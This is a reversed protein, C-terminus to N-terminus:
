RLQPNGDKFEVMPRIILSLIRTYIVTSRTQLNLSSRLITKQQSIGRDFPAWRTIMLILFIGHTLAARQSFPVYQRIIFLVLLQM